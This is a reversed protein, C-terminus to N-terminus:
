LVAGCHYCALAAVPIEGGCRPCKKLFSPPTYNYANESAQRYYQQPSSQYTVQQQPISIGMAGLALLVVGVIGVIIAFPAFFSSASGSVIAIIIAFIGTIVEGIPSQGIVAKSTGPPPPPIVIVPAIPPALAFGCNSCFPAGPM